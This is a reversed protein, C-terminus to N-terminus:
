KWDELLEPNEYINGIVESAYLDLEWYVTRKTKIAYDPQSLFAGDDFIVVSRSWKEKPLEGGDHLLIDGEYVDVGNKDKLGTWQMLWYGAREQTGLVECNYAFNWFLTGDLGVLLNDCGYRMKYREVDWARFRVERM